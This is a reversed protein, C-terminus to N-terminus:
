VPSGAAAGTAATAATAHSQMYHVEPICVLRSKAQIARVAIIEVNAASDLGDHRMIDGLWEEVIKRHLHCMIWHLHRDFVGVRNTTAVERAVHQGAISEARHNVLAHRVHCRGEFRRAHPFVRQQDHGRVIHTHSM